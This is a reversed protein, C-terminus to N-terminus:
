RFSSGIFSYSYFLSPGFLLFVLQCRPSWPLHQNFTSAKLDGQHQSLQINEEGVRFSLRGPSVNTVLYVKIMNAKVMKIKLWNSIM